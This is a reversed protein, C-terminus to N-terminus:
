SESGGSGVGLGGGSGIGGGGGAGCDCVCTGFMAGFPSELSRCPFKVVTVGRGTRGCDEIGGTV